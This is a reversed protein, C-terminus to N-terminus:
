SEEGGQKRDFEATLSDVIAREVAGCAAHYASEWWEGEAEHPATAFPPGWSSATLAVAADLALDNADEATRVYGRPEYRDLPHESAHITGVNADFDERSTEAGFCVGEVGGDTVLPPAASDDDDDQDDEDELDIAWDGDRERDRLCTKCLSGNAPM